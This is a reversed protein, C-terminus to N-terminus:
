SWISEAKRVMPLSLSFCTHGDAETLELKGGHEEAIAASLSLGLGVGKGAEKTTFFPEMIRAKVNPPIGPGGDIVSFVLSPDRVTVELRVWRDAPQDIVADFANQLLNLLVQAIQV